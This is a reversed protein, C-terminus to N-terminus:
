LVVVAADDVEALTAGSSPMRMAAVLQQDHNRAGPHDGVLVLLALDVDCILAPSRWQCPALASVVIPWMVIVATPPWAV